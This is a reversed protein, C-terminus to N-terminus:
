ANRRRMLVSAVTLLVAIWALLVAFGQWPSLVAGVVEPPVPGTQAAMLIKSGATAPMFPGILQLPKWPIQFLTPIVLLLGLVTALAGASHRLLAGIAFALLAIAALYLPVGALIRITERDGLDPALGKSRLLLEMVGLSLGVSVTSVVLIAATLVVGKAWLAPLRRPVAALTSRIMGTSYEGTIVLTGLVAVALQAMGAAISFAIISTTPGAEGHRSEGSGSTIMICFLTV